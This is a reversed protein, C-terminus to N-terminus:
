CILRGSSKFGIIMSIDQETLSEYHPYEVFPIDTTVENQEKFLYDIKIFNDGIAKTMGNMDTHVEVILVPQEPQQLLMIESIRAM